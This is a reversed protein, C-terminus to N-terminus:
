TEIKKSMVNSWVLDQGTINPAVRFYYTAGRVLGTTTRSSGSTTVTSTPSFSSNQSYQFRYSAAGPVTNWTSSISTASVPAISLMVWSSCSGERPENSDNTIYYQASSQALSVGSVCFVDTRGKDYTLTVSKSQEFINGTQASGDFVTGTALVPYGSGWNRASEMAAAVGILDSKVESAAARSRWSGYGIYTVTLLISLVAVIVLLEVLTFGTAKRSAGGLSLRNMDYAYYLPPYFAIVGRSYAPHNYNM